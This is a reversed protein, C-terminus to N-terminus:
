SLCFATSASATSASHQRLRMCYCNILQPLCCAAGFLACHVVCDAGNENATCHNVMEQRVGQLSHMQADQVMGAHDGGSHMMARDAAKSSGKGDKEVKLVRVDFADSKIYAGTQMGGSRDKDFEYVGVRHALTGGASSFYSDIDAM